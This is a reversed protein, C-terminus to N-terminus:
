TVFPIEYCKGELHFHKSGNIEKRFVLPAQSSVNVVKALITIVELRSIRNQRNKRCETM